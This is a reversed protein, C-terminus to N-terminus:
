GDDCGFDLVPWGVWDDASYGTPCRHVAYSAYAEGTSDAVFTSALYYLPRWPDAFPVSCAANAAARARITSNVAFSAGRWDARVSPPRGDDRAVAITCCGVVLKLTRGWPWRICVLRNDRVFLPRM